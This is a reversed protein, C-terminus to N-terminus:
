RLLGPGDARRWRRIVLSLGVGYGIAVIGLYPGFFRRLVPEAKRGGVGVAVGFALARLGRAAASAVAFRALPTGQRGAEAGYLKSPVGNLAQGLIGHAGRSMHRRATERMAPTVWPAPVRVGRRTLAATTVLGAVSGVALAAAAPVARRHNAAAFLVLYLEATVPWVTAEAFGWLGAAILGTRGAMHHHVVHWSRSESPVAPGEALLAAIQDRAATLDDDLEDPQIPRGLRVEVPGPRPRGGKPWLEHTGILAVPLLPVDFEKAIRAAGSRFDGLTGDISRTGEPFVLLSSGTGLVQQAGEILDEYGGGTRSVPVAGIAMELFRRRMPSRYWYDDAAVVVPKYPSPFAAVLAPTDAHSAHNAVVVM